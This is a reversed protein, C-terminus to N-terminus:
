ALLSRGHVPLSRVTKAWKKCVDAIQKRPVVNVQRPFSGQEAVHFWGNLTSKPFNVSFRFVAWVTMIAAAQMKTLFRFYGAADGARCRLGLKPSNDRIFLGIGIQQHM